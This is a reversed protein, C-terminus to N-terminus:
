EEKWETKSNRLNIFFEKGTMKEYKPRVYVKHCKWQLFEEESIRQVNQIELDIQTKETVFKSKELLLSYKFILPYLIYECTNEELYKKLEKLISISGDIYKITINKNIKQLSIVGKPLICHITTNQIILNNKFINKLLLIEEDEEYM